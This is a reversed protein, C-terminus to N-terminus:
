EEEQYADLIEIWNEGDFIEVTKTNMEYRINLGEKNHYYIYCKYHNNDKKLSEQKENPFICNLILGIYLPWFFLFALLTSNDKYKPNKYVYILNCAYGCAFYGLLLYTIIFIKM